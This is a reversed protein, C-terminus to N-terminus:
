PYGTAMEFLANLANFDFNDWVQGNSWVISNASLTRTVGLRSGNFPNSTEIGQLV